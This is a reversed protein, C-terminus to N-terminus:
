FASYSFTPTIDSGGFGDPDHVYIQGYVEAFRQSESRHVPRMARVNTLTTFTIAWNRGVQSHTHELKVRRGVCLDNRSHYPLHWAGEGNLFEKLQDPLLEQDLHWDSDLGPVVRSYRFYLKESNDLIVEVLDDDTVGQKEPVFWTLRTKPAVLEYAM